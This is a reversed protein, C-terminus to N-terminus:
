ARVHIDQGLELCHALEIRLASNSCQVTKSEEPEYKDKWADDTVTQRCAERGERRVAVQCGSQQCNQCEERNPNTWEEPRENDGEIECSGNVDDDVIVM